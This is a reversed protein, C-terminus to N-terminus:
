EIASFTVELGHKKCITVVANVSTLSLVENTSLEKGVADEIAAIINIQALSDWEPVTECTDEVQLPTSINLIPQLLEDITM